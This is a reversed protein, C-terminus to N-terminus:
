TSVEEYEKEFYVPPWIDLADGSDKVIYDGINVLLKRTGTFLYTQMECCGASLIQAEGGLELIASVNAGDWRVAEVETPKMKYRM